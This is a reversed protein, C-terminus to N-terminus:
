PPNFTSLQSAFAVIGIACRPDALNDPRIRANTYRGPLLRLRQQSGERIADQPDFGPPQECVAAAGYQAL